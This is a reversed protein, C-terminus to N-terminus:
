PELDLLERAAPLDEERVLLRTGPGLGMLLAEASAPSSRIVSPIGNAELISRSLAAEAETGCAVLERLEGSM